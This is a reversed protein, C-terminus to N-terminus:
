RAIQRWPFGALDPEVWGTRAAPSALLRASYHRALLRKDFLAPNSEAFSAFGASPAGSTVHHAVLETWARTVTANFKQPAREYAAIHTIWRAVVDAARAAGHRQIALFALHIHQRHRFEGGPPVIEALVAALEPPMARAGPRRAPYAHQHQGDHAQDRDQTM